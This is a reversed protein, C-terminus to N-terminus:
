AHGAFFVRLRPATAQMDSGLSCCRDGRKLVAVKLEYVSRAFDSLFVPAYGASSDVGEHGCYKQNDSAGWTSPFTAGFPTRGLFQAARDNGDGTARIQNVTMKRWGGPAWSRESPPPASARERDKAVWVAAARVRLAEVDTPADALAVPSGSSRQGVVGLESVASFLLSVVMM